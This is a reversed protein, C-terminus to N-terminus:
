SASVGEISASLALLNELNRTNQWFNGDDINSKTMFLSQQWENTSYTTLGKFNM